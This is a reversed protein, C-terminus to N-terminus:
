VLQQLFFGGQHTNYAPYAQGYYLFLLAIFVAIHYFTYLKGGFDNGLWLAWLIFSVETEV